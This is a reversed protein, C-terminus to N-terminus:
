RVLRSLFVGANNILVDIQGARALVEDVCRQVSEDSRVDLELMEIGDQDSRKRRSTGFVRFGEKAFLRAATDGIGSSAGTILVTDVKTEM